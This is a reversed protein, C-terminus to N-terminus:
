SYPRAALVPHVPRDPALNHPANVILRDGPTLGEMVLCMEGLANDIKLIRQRVIGKHDIILAVADGKANHTVASKPAFIADNNTGDSYTVRVNMGPSLLLKPNPFVARLVVKGADKDFTINTFPLRGELPYTTGDDFQLQVHAVASGNGLKQNTALKQKLATLQNSSVTVDVYIPNLTEVTALANIQYATVLTGPTMFSRGIYGAIPSRIITNDLNFKANDLSAKQQAVVTAAQKYAAQASDYDQKSIASQGLLEAYRKAKGEALALNDQANQLVAAAGDYAAQYPARDIQYLPQGADVSSGETFLRAELKGSVQPRIDSVAYAETKGPLDETQAASATRIVVYTANPLAPKAQHTEGRGCASLCLASAATTVAVKRIFGFM